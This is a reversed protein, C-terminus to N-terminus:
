QGNGRNLLDKIADLTQQLRDMREQHQASAADLRVQLGELLALREIAATLRDNIAVQQRNFERQEELREIIAAGQEDRKVVLATLRRLLNDYEDQDM